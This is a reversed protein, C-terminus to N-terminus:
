LLIRVLAKHNLEGPDKFGRPPEIAEIDLSAMRRCAKIAAPLAGRDLMMYRRKFRPCVDHALDIQLESPGSTFFCTAVIGEERGLTWIKLADFPGECFVITDADVELLDDYWLLFDPLPGLARPDDEEDTGLAKYRLMSKNSVTRGVWSVLREEFYVPFVIRGAQPGQQAFCIGHRNTFRFIDFDEFGRGRLYNVYPRAMVKNRAIPKFESPLQLVHDSRKSAPNMAAAVADAWNDPVFVTEGVIRRAVDLPYNAAAALLRAASKGAHSHNRYCRWGKGVLSVSMHESPDATGCWPCKIAIHDRAVNPGSTVYAVGHADFLRQYDIAV